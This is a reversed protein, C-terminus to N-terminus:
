QIIIIIIIIIIIVIITKNYLYHYGNVIANKNIDIMIDIISTQYGQGITTTTKTDTTNNSMEREKWEIM